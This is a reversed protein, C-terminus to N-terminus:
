KGGTGLSGTFKKSIFSVLAIGFSIGVIVAFIPWLSNFMASANTMLGDVNISFSQSSMAQSTATPLALALLMVALLVLAARRARRPQKEEVQINM